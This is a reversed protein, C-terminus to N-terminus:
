VAFLQLLAMSEQGFPAAIQSPAAQKGELRPSGVRSVAPQCLLLMFTNPM